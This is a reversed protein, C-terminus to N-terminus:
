GFAWGQVQMLALVAAAITVLGVIVAAAVRIWRRPKGEEDAPPTTEVTSGAQPATFNIKNRKGTVAFHIANTAVEAPPTETGGPVNANIEAMMVTLTTRVQDVVGELAVPAVAWYLQLIRGTAMQKMNMYHVLEAAFPPQLKVAEDSGTAERALKEIEAIGMYLNLDNNIKDQAFDPLESPSVTQGTSLWRMNMLDLRLPAIIKRYEPLEDGPKYGKLERTAWDRLETSGARGGLFIVKRLLDGIPTQHDLAGVEIELLLRDMRMTVRPSYRGGGVTAKSAVCTVKPWLHCLAVGPVADRTTLKCGGQYGASDSSEM